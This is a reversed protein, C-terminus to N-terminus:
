RRWFLWLRVGAGIALLGAAVGVAFWVLPKLQDFNSFSVPLRACARRGSAPTGM